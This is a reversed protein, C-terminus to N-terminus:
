MLLRWCKQGSQLLRFTVWARWGRVVKRRDVQQEVENAAVMHLKDGKVISVANVLSTAHYLLDNKALATFVGAPIIKLM